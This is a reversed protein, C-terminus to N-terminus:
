SHGIHVSKKLPQQLNSSGGAIEAFWSNYAEMYHSFLDHLAQSHYSPRLSSAFSEFDPVNEVKQEIVEEKPTKPPNFPGFVFSKSGQLQRQVAKNCEKLDHSLVQTKNSKNDISSLLKARKVEVNTLETGFMRKGSKQAVPPLAITVGNECKGKTGLWRFAPKRTDSQHTKEILNLSSLVNAIDYLRRVKAANANRMYAPNQGDGLLLKAADDLSVTDANTTLLLKVFNQTLQGLSKEKREAVCKPKAATDTICLRGEGYDDNHDLSKDDDEDDSVKASSCELSSVNHEKATGEKLQELTIPIGKFGIWLYRNKAKRTLVGISEMVNVIDYIRRREVGLKIAADDLCVTDVDDKNYLSVFNACLLGLSKQKRSYAHHRSGSESKEAM